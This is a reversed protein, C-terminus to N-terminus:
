VIKFFSMLSQLANPSLRLRQFTGTKSAPVPLIGTTLDLLQTQAPTIESRRLRTRRLMEVTVGDRRQTVRPRVESVFIQSGYGMPRLPAAFDDLHATLDTAPPLFTLLLYSNNFCSLGDQKGSYDTDILQRIM